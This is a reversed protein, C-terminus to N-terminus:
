KIIEDLNITQQYVDKYRKTVQDRDFTIRPGYSELILSAVVAGLKSCQILDWQRLYGHLFGARFADGAGTPDVIKVPKAIPIHLPGSSVSSGEITVGDAGKTTIILPLQRCLQKKSIGTKEILLSHEYENVIVLEAAALGHRIDEGSINNVQQGPDYLLRIGLKKCEAVQRRMGVPDHASLCVLVNQKAWPKLTLSEADAMAGPFFGGVQNHGSDTLVNFSATPLKSQHVFDVNVGAEKLLNLYENSDPGVSGLLVPHDGLLAVSYAINAGIGGPAIKLSDVLVSVSLVDLKKEHILDQYHGNFNMIRDIAISGSVILTPIEM